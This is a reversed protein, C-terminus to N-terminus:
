SVIARMWDAGSLTVGTREERYRADPELGRLPVSWYAAEPQCVPRFYAAVARDGNVVMWGFESEPCLARTLRLFRGGHVVERLEKLRRSIEGMREREEDPLPESPEGGM